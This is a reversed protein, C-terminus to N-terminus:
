FSDFDDQTAKRTKVKKPNHHDIFEEIYDIVMGVTMLHLDELRLGSQYALVQFLETTM